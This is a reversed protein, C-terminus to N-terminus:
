RKLITVHGMKRGPRTEKKGYLHLKANPMAVYKEWDNVANGILNKMEADCLRETSGLPLGCIARVCQEFQSTVCADISWHGSNHPRPALENVLLSHDRTLFMEIALVGELKAGEAIKVAMAQAQEAVAGDVPAPVITTDLIHQKHINQVAPYRAVEGTVSRAVIVSLEMRFDVFAELIAEQTKLMNWAREAENAEFITVQGKGDYGMETTKLVCPTGLAKVAAQCTELSTVGRFEATGIGLERVFTKERLRNQCLSLVDAGPRVPVLLEIHKVGNSPINEFEYTVVNVQRAFTEMAALDEYSGITHHTAVEFAPSGAEPCYIHTQYGLEAAAIALMRGLQGGGLIGLTSGPPLRTTM